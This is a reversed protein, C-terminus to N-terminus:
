ELPQGNKRRLVTKGQTTTLHMDIDSYVVQEVPSRTGIELYTAVKGSRNILHHGNEDNAPFGVSMGAGLVQEGQDTVLTLEGELVYCFEDEAVHWHRQSSAAGPQLTTVNVGFQTLGLPGTLKRKSRGEVIGAHAKPYITGTQSEVNRPDVVKAM